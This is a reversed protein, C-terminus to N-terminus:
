SAAMGVQLAILAVRVPIEIEGRGRADPAVQLIVLACRIRIVRRRSDRLGALDAVGGRRPHRCCEIM